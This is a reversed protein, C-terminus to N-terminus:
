FTAKVAEFGVGLSLSDKATPNAQPSYAGNQFLQVDGTLLGKIISNTSVECLDIHGDGKAACMPSATGDARVSGAPNKCTTGCAADAAGGNDFISLIQGNQGGTPDKTVRDDLVKAVSPIITNQVDTNSVAGNLQGMMLGTGSRTFQLHAATVSLQVPMGGMVLPLALTAQVPVKATVPSNSNFVSNAIRGLFTGKGPATNVTFMGKGTVDLMSGMPLSNGIFVDAQAGSDASFTPDISLEDLLIVVEGTSVAVDVSAQTDLGQSKLTGLINGLQNDKTGDGNLDMGFTMRSTPILLKSVVYQAKPSGAPPGMTVAPIADDGGCGALAGAIAFASILGSTAVRKM